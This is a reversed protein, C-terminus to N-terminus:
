QAAAVSASDGNLKAWWGLTGWARWQPPDVYLRLSDGYNFMSWYQGQPPRPPPPARLWLTAGVLQLINNHQQQNTWIAKGMAHSNM